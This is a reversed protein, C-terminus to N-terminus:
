AGTSGRIILPAYINVTTGVISYPEKIDPSSPKSPPPPASPSLLWDLALNAQLDYPIDVSTLGPYSFKAYYSNNIGMVKFQGPIRYGKEMAKMLFRYAMADDFALIGIPYRDGNHLAVLQDILTGYDFEAPIVFCGSQEEIRLLRTGEIFGGRRQIDTANTPSPGIYGVWECGQERLHRVGYICAQRFDVNVAGIAIDEPWDWANFLVLPTGDSVIARTSDHSMALGHCLLGDVRRELLSELHRKEIMPDSETSYVALRYGRDHAASEMVEAFSGFYGAFGPLLLGLEYSHKKSLSAALVNRRYGLNKAAEEVKRITEEAMPINSKRNLVNSVTATSVQAERAVDIITINRNKM